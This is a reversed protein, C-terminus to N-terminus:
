AVQGLVRRDAVRRELEELGAGGLASPAAAGGFRLVLLRRGESAEQVVLDEGM